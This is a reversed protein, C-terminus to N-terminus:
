PSVRGPWAALADIADGPPDATPDSVAVGTGSPSPGVDGALSVLAFLAIFLVAVAAPVLTSRLMMFM